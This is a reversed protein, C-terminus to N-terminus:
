NSNKLSALERKQTKACVVDRELIRKEARREPWSKRLRIKKSVVEVLFGKRVVMIDFFFSPLSCHNADENKNGCHLSM